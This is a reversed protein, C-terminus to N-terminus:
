ALVVWALGLLLLIILVMFVILYNRTSNKGNKPSNIILMILTLFLLLVAGLSVNLIVLNKISFGSQMANFDVTVISFIAVFIGMLTLMNAYMKTELDKLGDTAKEIQSISKKYVSDYTGFGKYQTEDSFSDTKKNQYPQEPVSDLPDFFFQAIEMGKNLEFENPSLNTVRLYGRSHHGPFYRPGSVQIGTRMLSNKEGVSIYLDVPVKFEEETEIMISDGPQLSYHDPNPSNLIKNISVDYSICGLKDPNFPTVFIEGFRNKIDKDVLM